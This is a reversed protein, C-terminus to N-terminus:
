AANSKSSMSRWILGLVLGAAALGGGWKWYSRATLNKLSDKVAEFINKNASEAGDLFKGKAADSINSAVKKLSTEGGEVKALQGRLKTEAERVVTTVKSVEAKAGDTPILEKVKAAIAKDDALNFVEKNDKLFTTLAKEDIAEQPIVLKGLTELQATAQTHTRLQARYAEAFRAPDPKADGTLEEVYKKYLRIAETNAKDKEKFAAGVLKQADESLNTFEKGGAVELLANLRNAKETAHRSLMVEEINKFVTADEPLAAPVLKAVAAGAGAGVITAGIPIGYGPRQQENRSNIANVSM